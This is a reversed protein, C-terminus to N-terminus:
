EVGRRLAGKHPVLYILLTSLNCWLRRWCAHVHSRSALVWQSRPWRACRACSQGRAGGAWRRWCTCAAAFWLTLVPLPTQPLAGVGLEQGEQGGAAEGCIGLRTGRGGQGEGWIAHRIYSFYPQLPCCHWLATPPAPMFSPSPAAGTRATQGTDGGLEWGRCAGGHAGCVGPVLVAPHPAQRVGPTAHTSIPPTPMASPVIHDHGKMSQVPGPHRECDIGIGSREDCRDQLWWEGPGLVRVAGPVRGPRPPPSLLFTSFRTFSTRPDM